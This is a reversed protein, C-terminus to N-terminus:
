THGANPLRLWRTRRFKPHQCEFVSQLGPIVLVRESRVHTRGKEEFGLLLLGLCAARTRETVAAVWHAGETGGRSRM